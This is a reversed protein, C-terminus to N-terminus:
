RMSAGFFASHVSLFCRGLQTKCIYRDSKASRGGSMAIRNAIEDSKDPEREGWTACSSGWRPPEHAVDIAFNVRHIGDCWHPWPLSPHQPQDEYREPAQLLQLLGQDVKGEDLESTPDDNRSM